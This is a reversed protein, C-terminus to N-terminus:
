AASGNGSVAPDEAIALAYADCMEVGKGREAPMEERFEKCFLHLSTDRTYWRANPCAACLPMNELDMAMTLLTPGLRKPELAWLRALDAPYLGEQDKPV